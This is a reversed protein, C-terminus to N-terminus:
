RVDGKGIRSLEQQTWLYLEQREQSSMIKNKPMRKMLATQALVQVPGAHRLMKAEIYTNTRPTVNTDSYLVM